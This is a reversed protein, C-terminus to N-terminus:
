LHRINQLSLSFAFDNFRMHANWFCIVRLLKEEDFPLKLELAEAGRITLDEQSCLLQTIVDVAIRSSVLVFSSFSMAQNM